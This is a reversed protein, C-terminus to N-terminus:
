TAAELAALRADQAAILFLALQDPRIGFRDGAEGDEGGEDGAGWADWCLFAYPTTGPQGDAGIPDILGEDAMIAWVAQARVGFHLRAHDAGKKAIADDWQYFGLMDTIRRAAALEAPNPPGRWTKERADSTVTPSSGLFLDKIRNGGAGVNFSNDIVPRLHGATDFRWIPIAGVSIHVPSNTRSGVIVGNAPSAQVEGIDTGGGDILLIASSPGKLHATRYGSFATPSSTGIGVNGAADVRLRETANIDLAWFDAGLRMGVRGAGAGAVNFLGASDADAHLYLSPGGAFGFRAVDGAGGSDVHLRAAPVSTGIGLHGASSLRLREVGDSAIGIAGPSARFLGTDPDAAFGIAPTAASGNPAGLPGEIAHRGDAGRYALTSLPVNVWGGGRRVTLQDDAAGVAVAAHTTSLPQKTALADALSDALSDALAGDAAARAAFWDAGVTLAITKLGPAFDVAGGGSSSAAVSDRQLRGVGDIRGLGVEWQGPQAIGAVAYHFQVGAPVTGAFRRHGPVAGTPTLPGTGGEQCMERVLDAFFPTPM